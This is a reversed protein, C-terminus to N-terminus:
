ALDLVLIGLVVSLTCGMWLTWLRAPLQCMLRYGDCSYIVCYKSCVLCLCLLEVEAFIV